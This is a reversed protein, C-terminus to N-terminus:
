HLESFKWHKKLQNTSHECGNKKSTCIYIDGGNYGEKNWMLYCDGQINKNSYIKNLGLVFFSKKKNIQTPFYCEM